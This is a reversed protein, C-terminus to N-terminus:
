NAASGGTGLRSLARQAEEDLPSMTIALKYWGRAEELLGAEECAKGLEALDSIQNQRSPSRVRIIQNYVANLKQVRALHAEAATNDGKLKLAQALHMPSVRDYPESSLADRFHKIAADVDRKRLALEGRMRSIRPHDEPAKALMAEAETYRGRNFAFNIRLALADTDSEPLPGLIREIYADVEDGPRELLLETVALRSLRDGPDAAIFGDLDQVIDPNWQTFHTLAWTFLDHHSLTTLKALAHFEADVERRRSQIGLIYILEKRADVLGPKLALAHRFAEESKRLRRLQRWLRGELLHAQAAMPHDDPIQSIAYFADDFRKEAIALQATLLWDLGNKPRIRELRVLSAKTVDWRGSLFAREADEWLRDPDTRDHLRWWAAGAILILLIGGIARPFLRQWRRPVRITTM